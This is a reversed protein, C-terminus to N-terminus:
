HQWKTGERSEFRKGDGSDFSSYRGYRLESSRRDALIRDAIVRGRAFSDMGGIHAIFMDVLDTSEGCVEADFNLGGTGLGSAELIVM